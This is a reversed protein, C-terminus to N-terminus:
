ARRDNGAELARGGDPSSGAAPEAERLGDATPAALLHAFVERIPGLRAESLLARLRGETRGINVYHRFRSLLPAGAV